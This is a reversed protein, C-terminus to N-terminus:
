MGLIRSPDEIPRQDLPVRSDPARRVQVHFLRGKLDPRPQWKIRITAAEPPWAISSITAPEAPFSGDRGRRGEQLEACRWASLHACHGWKAAKCQVIDVLSVRGPPDTRYLVGARYLPPLALTRLLQRNVAVLLDVEAKVVLEAFQPDTLAWRSICVALDM